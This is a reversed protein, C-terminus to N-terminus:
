TALNSGVDMTAPGTDFMWQRNSMTNSLEPDPEKAVWAQPAFFVMTGNLDKVTLPLKGSNAAKDLVHQASLLDNALSTQKLTVTVRYDNANNNVRDVGGDAGRVKTFADGNGAITVFTGDAFGTMITGGFTIVIQKPDYTRVAVDVAM